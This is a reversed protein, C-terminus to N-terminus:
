IRSISDRHVKRGSFKKKIGVEQDVTEAFIFIALGGIVNFIGAVVWFGRYFKESNM